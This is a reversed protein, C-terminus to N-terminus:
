GTSTKLSEDDISKIKLIDVGTLIPSNVQLMHCNGGNENFINSDESYYISNYEFFKSPFQIFIKAITNQIQPIGTNIKNMVLNKLANIDKGSELERNLEDVEM